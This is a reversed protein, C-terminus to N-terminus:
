REVVDVLDAGLETRPPDPRLSAGLRDAVERHREAMAHQYRLAESHTRDGLRQMLEPLM